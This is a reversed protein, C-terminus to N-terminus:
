ASVNYYLYLVGAFTQAGATVALQVDAPSAGLAEYLDVHQAGAVELDADEAATYADPDANTGLTASAGAGSAATTVDFVAFHLRTDDALGTLVDLPTGDDDQDFAAAACRLSDAQYGLDIDVGADNIFHLGGSADVYLTGYGSAPTSPASGQEAITLFKMVAEIPSSSGDLVQLVGSANKLVVSRAIFFSDKLTGLAKFITDKAAM